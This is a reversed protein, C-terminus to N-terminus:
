DLIQSTFVYGLAKSYINEWSNKQAFEIAKERCRQYLEDDTLLRMIANILENKDYKIVIGAGSKEIEFAVEPVRTIVVPLGCGMYVKPKGPDAYWTFSSPDPVYPALGIACKAVLREVDENNEIYGLFHINDSLNKKKVEDRFHEELPGTGIVILKVSPIKEVVSPMAELILEIGQGSRLHSLFAISTREIEETPLHDIQNFNTGTPVVIQNTKERKIGVRERAEAMASTLNWTYDAHSVCVKDIFHYTGDLIGNNFRKPVYDIVYFIVVRVIGIRKLILGAFANLPDAGVYIDFRKRVRFVFYFTLIFDKIYLLVESVKIEPAEMKRKVVGKEYITAFSRKQEAFFFPHGIFALRQTRKQLFKELEQSHGTFSVHSVILFSLQLSIREIASADKGLYSSGKKLM